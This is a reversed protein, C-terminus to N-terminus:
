ANPDLEVTVRLLKGALTSLPIVKDLAEAPVALTIKAEGDADSTVRFISAPFTSM